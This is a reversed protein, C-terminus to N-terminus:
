DNKQNIKSVIMAKQGPTLKAINLDFTFAKMDTIGDKAMKLLEDYTKRKLTFNAVTEEKEPNAKPKEEVKDEVVSQVIERKSPSIDKIPPLKNLSQLDDNLGLEDLMKRGLENKGGHLEVKSKRIYLTIPIKPDATPKRGAGSREGGKKQKSM